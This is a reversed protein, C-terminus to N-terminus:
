YRNTQRFLSTLIKHSTTKYICTSRVTNGHNYILYMSSPESIFTECVVLVRYRTKYISTPFSGHNYVLYKSRSKSSPVLGSSQIQDKENKDRTFGSSLQKTIRQFMGVRM